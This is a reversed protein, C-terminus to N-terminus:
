GMAAVISFFVRPRRGQDIFQLAAVPKTITQTWMLNGSVYKNFYFRTGFGTSIGSSQAPTGSIKKFDWMGGAEYFAYLQISQLQFHGIAKDYRLELSAAAGKDGIIEAVDYGRGLQSGGFSFQEASLLPNFAWQGKLLSYLSVPGKIAQLRTLMATVKTYDGRGGPRSTQATQPNTNSTYGWIPLGQRFDATLMDIGLWRDSFNYIMGLDLSRIHDTYLPAGLSTVKSDSFYFGSQLTLRADRTRIIPFQFNTYYNDNLGDVQSPRLVYLPYTHSRTGGLLWTVGEDNIPMTYNIDLFTLEGGKPTKTFTAQTTDGASIFSNFGLNATMQQPGIYRTGYNDYSVYGTVPTTVTMLTLDAAGPKTKSPSLVAKTQVGPLENAIFLYKEMRKIDLPRCKAIQEGYAKVICKAGKPSGGVEVKDLYGEIVQIHVVGDKVHQPPLLARSLIYGNNRYFNTIGVAIDLLEAVSITKHLKDKYIGNLQQASYVHNGDLIIKNLKFKIKKAQEGLPSAAQQQPQSVQPLPQNAAPQPMLSKSVESPRVSGPLQAPTIALSISDMALLLVVIGAVKFPARQKM